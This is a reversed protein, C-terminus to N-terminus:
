RGKKAKAKKGAKLPSLFCSADDIRSPAALSTNTLTPQLLCLGPAKEGIFAIARSYIEVQRLELKLAFTKGWEVEM